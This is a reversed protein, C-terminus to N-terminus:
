FLASITKKQNGERKCSANWGSLLERYTEALEKATMGEEDSEYYSDYKGTFAMVNNDGEGTSGDKSQSM